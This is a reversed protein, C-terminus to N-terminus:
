TDFRYSGLSTNAALNWSTVQFLNMQIFRQAQKTFPLPSSHLDGGSWRNLMDFFEFYIKEDMVFKFVSLADKFLDKLALLKM